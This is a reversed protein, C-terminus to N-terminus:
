ADHSHQGGSAAGERRAGDGDARLLSGVCRYQKRMAPWALLLGAHEHYRVIDITSHMFLIIMSSLDYM